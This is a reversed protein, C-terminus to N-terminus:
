NLFCKILGSNSIWPCGVSFNLIINTDTPKGCVNTVFDEKLYVGAGIHHMM